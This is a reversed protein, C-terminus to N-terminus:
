CLSRQARKLLRVSSSFSLSSFFSFSSSLSSSLSVFFFSISSSLSSRLLLVSSSSYSSSSTIIFFLPHFCSFYYASSSSTPTPRSTPTLSRTAAKGYEPSCELRCGCSDPARGSRGSSWGSARRTSRRRDRVDENAAYDDSPIAYCTTLTRCRLM